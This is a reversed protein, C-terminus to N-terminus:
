PCIMQIMSLARRTPRRLTDSDVSRGSSFRAAPYLPPSHCEHTRNVEIRQEPRPPAEVAHEEGRQQDGSHEVAAREVRHVMPSATATLEALYHTGLDARLGLRTYVEAQRLLHRRRWGGRWVWLWLGLRLRGDDDLVWPGVPRGRRRLGALHDERVLGELLRGLRRRLDSYVPGAKGFICDHLHRLGLGREDDGALYETAGILQRGSGFPDEAEAPRAGGCTDAGEAGLSLAPARGSRGLRGGRGCLLRGGRLWLSGSSGGLHEVPGVRWVGLLCTLLPHLPGHHQPQHNASLAMRAVHPHHTGGPM